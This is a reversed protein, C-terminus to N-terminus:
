LFYIPLGKMDYKSLETSLRDSVRHEGIADQLITYAMVKVELRAWVM